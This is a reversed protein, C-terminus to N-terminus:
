QKVCRLDDKSFSKKYFVIGVNDVYGRLIPLSQPPLITDQFLNQICKGLLNYIQLHKKTRNLKKFLFLQM